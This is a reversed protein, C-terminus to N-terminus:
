CPHDQCLKALATQAKYNGQEAALKLWHIAKKIDKEGGEGDRLMTAYNYQAWSNGTKAAAAFGMKAEEFDGQSYARIAEQNQASINPGNYLPKPKKFRQRVVGGLVHIGVPRYVSVIMEDDLLDLLNDKELTLRQPKFYHDTMLMSVRIDRTINRMTRYTYASEKVEINEDTLETIQLVQFAPEYVQETNKGADFIILDDIQPSALYTKYSAVQQQHQNFFYLAITVVILASVAVKYKSIFNFITDYFSFLVSKIEM